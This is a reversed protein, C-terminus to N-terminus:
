ASLIVLDADLNLDFVERVSLLGDSNEGGFSTVLAPRAPCNPKAATVLGHRAFHVVRHDSLKNEAILAAVSFQQGTKATSNQEGYKSAAFFLEGPDIPDRWTDLAWARIPPNLARRHCLLLASVWIAKQRM